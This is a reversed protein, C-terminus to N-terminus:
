SCLGWFYDPFTMFDQYCMSSAIFTESSFKKDKLFKASMLYNNDAFM